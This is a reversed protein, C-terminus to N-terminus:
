KRNRRPAPCEHQSHTCSRCFFALERLSPNGRGRSRNRSGRPLFASFPRSSPMLSNVTKTDRQPASTCCINLVDLNILKQLIKQLMHKDSFANMVVSYPMICAALARCLKDVPRKAHTAVYKFQARACTIQKISSYVIM